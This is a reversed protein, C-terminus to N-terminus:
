ESQEDVELMEDELRGRIASDTWPHRRRDVPGPDLPPAAQELDESIGLEELAQRLDEDGVEPSAPDLEVTRQVPSGGQASSWSTLYSEGEEVAEGDAGFNGYGEAVHDISERVFESDVNLGDLAEPDARMITKLMEANGDEILQRLQRRNGYNPNPRALSFRLATVRQVSQHWEMWSIEIIEEIVRWRFAVSAENLLAQFAGTFTRPRIQPMRLQFAVHRTPVHVTFPSTRGELLSVEEFDQLEESWLQAPGGLTEYGIRGSIWPGGRRIQGMRWIRNYREVQTAPRIAEILGTSPPFLSLQEGGVPVITAFAIRAKRRSPEQSSV